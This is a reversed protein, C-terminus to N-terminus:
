FKELATEWFPAMVSIDRKESVYKKSAEGVEYRLNDNELLNIIIDKLDSGDSKIGNSYSIVEKYVIPDCICPIGTAASQLWRLDSKSKFYKSDHVPAIMIDFNTLAYPINEISVWPISLCHKPHYPELAEAYETGMSAFGLHSIQTMAESIAPLWGAVAKHHGTGGMWGIVVHSRLPFEVNYRESDIGVLCAQVNENYKSYQEALFETSCILGDAQKMCEVHSRVVKKNYHSKFRHGEIRNVGHVFDDIEYIVKQGASQREKIWKLWEDGYPQQIVIIDYKNIDPVENVSGALLDSLDTKLGRGIWDYKLQSAPLAIRYYCSASPGVGIFLPKLTCGRPM